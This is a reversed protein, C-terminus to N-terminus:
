GAKTIHHQYVREVREDWIPIDFLCQCSLEDMWAFPSNHGVGLKIIPLHQLARSMTAQSLGTRRAIEASSLNEAFLLKAILAQTNM